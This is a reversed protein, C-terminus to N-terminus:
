RGADAAKRAALREVIGLKSRELREVTFGAATVHELPERTLHDHEFRLFIPELVRQGIRVASVPSRVHEMLLLRGGPRLVRWMEAVAARDDPITCLSLTCTVTDFSEDEFELAEADGVRLDVERGSTAAERRAIELMAPSLEIGTVRVGAPYHRLNRGTGVAIELVDGEAQSCVWERGDGFLVREFFAIQRNYKSATKDYHERVGGTAEDQQRRPNVEGERVV